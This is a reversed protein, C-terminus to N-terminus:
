VCVHLVQFAELIREITRKLIAPASSVSCPLRNCRFLGKYMNIVALKKSEEDLPVQQYARALGLKM